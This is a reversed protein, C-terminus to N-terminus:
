QPKPPPPPPPPRQQPMVFVPQGRADVSVPVMMMPQGQHIGM